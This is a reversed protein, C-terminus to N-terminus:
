AFPFRPGPNPYAYFTAPNFRNNSDCSEMEQYNSKWHCYLFLCVILFFMCLNVKVWFSLMICPWHIVVYVHVTCYCPWHIVVYVHVTCYCPWHISTTSRSRYLFNSDRTIFLVNLCYNHDVIGSIDLLLSWYIHNQSQVLV